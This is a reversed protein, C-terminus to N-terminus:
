RHTIKTVKWEQNAFTMEINIGYEGFLESQNNQKVLIKNQNLQVVDYENQKDFWPPTETPIIYLGDNEEKYYYDIYPKVVEEAAINEFDKMLSAKNNYKKVNDNSDTDQVLMDMFKDTIDVIEVHTISHVNEQNQTLGQVTQKSNMPKELPLLYGIGLGIAVLVIMLRM